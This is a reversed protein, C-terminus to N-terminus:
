LGISACISVIRRVVHADIGLKEFKKKYSARSTTANNTVFIVHKGQLM